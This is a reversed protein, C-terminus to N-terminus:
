EFFLNPNNKYDELISKCKTKLHKLVQAGDYIRDPEIVSSFDVFIKEVIRNTGTQFADLSSTRVKGIYEKSKNIIDEQNKAANELRKESDSLLQLLKENKLKEENIADTLISVEDELEEIKNTAAVKLKEIRLKASEMAEELGRNYECRGYELTKESSISDLASLALNPTLNSKIEPTSKNDFKSQLESRLQKELKNESQEVKVIPSSTSSIANNEKNIKSELSNILRKRPGMKPILKELDNTTLLNLDLFLILYYLLYNGAFGINENKFNTLYENLDLSNFYEQLKDDCTVESSITKPIEHELAEEIEKSKKYKVSLVNIDIIVSSNKNIKNVWNCGVM